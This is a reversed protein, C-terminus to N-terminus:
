GVVVNRFGSVIPLGEHCQHLFNGRIVTGPTIESDLLELRDDLRQWGETRSNGESDDGLFRVRAEGIDGLPTIYTVTVIQDPVYLCERREKMFHVVASYHGNEEQRWDRFTWDSTPPWMRAEFGNRNVQIYQNGLIGLIGLSVILGIGALGIILNVLRKIQVTDPDVPHSSM